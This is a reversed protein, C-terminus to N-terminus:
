LNTLRRTVAALVGRLYAVRDKAFVWDAGNMHLGNEPISGKEQGKPAGLAAFPQL